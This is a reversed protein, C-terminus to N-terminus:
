VGIFQAITAKTIRDASMEGAATGIEREDRLHFLLKHGIASGNPVEEPPAVLRAKPFYSCLADGNYSGAGPDGLLDVIGVHFDTGADFAAQWTSSTFSTTIELLGDGLPDGRSWELVPSDPLTDNNAGSRSVSGLVPTWQPAVNFKYGTIPTKAPAAGPAAFDSLIYAETAFPASHKQPKAASAINPAGEVYSTGNFALDIHKRGGFAMQLLVNFPVAGKLTYPRQGPEGARDVEATFSLYGGAPDESFCAGTAAGFDKANMVSQVNAITDLQYGFYAVGANVRVVPRFAKRGTTYTVVVWPDPVGGTYDFSTLTINGVGSLAVNAHKKGLASEFFDAATVILNKHLPLRFNFSNSKAGKYPAQQIFRVGRQSGDEFKEQEVKWGPETVGPLHKIQAVDGVAISTERYTSIRTTIARPSSVAPM